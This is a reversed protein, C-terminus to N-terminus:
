SKNRYQTLIPHKLTKEITWGRQLRQAILDVGRDTEEAWAKLCQTKGNYTLLRNSRKNRAQQIWTGWYCNSPEYNGNTDKRELSYPGVPKRGMDKIFNEFSCIWQRCVTIGREGYHKYAGNKPNMTRQKMGSWAAYESSTNGNKAWGHKFASQSLRESSLKKKLCGCSSTEGSKISRAQIKKLNGCDCRCTWLSSTKGKKDRHIGIEIITLQAFREGVKNINKAM